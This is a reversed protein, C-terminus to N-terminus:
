DDDAKSKDLCSRHRAAPSERRAYRNSGQGGCAHQVHKKGRWDGKRRKQPFLNKQVKGVVGMSTNSNFVTMCNVLHFFATTDSVQGSLGRLAAQLYNELTVM